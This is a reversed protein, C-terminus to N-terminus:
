SPTPELRGRKLYADLNWQVAKAGTNGVECLHDLWAPHLVAILPSHFAM